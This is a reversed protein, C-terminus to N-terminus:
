QDIGPRAIYLGFDRRVWIKTFGKPYNKYFGKPLQTLSDKIRQIQERKKHNGGETATNIM